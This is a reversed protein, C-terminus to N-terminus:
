PCLAPREHLRDAGARARRAHAHPGGGGRQRSMSHTIAKLERGDAVVRAKGPLSIYAPHHLIRTAYGYSAIQREVYRLSEAEEATGSLKTWRALEALHRMMAEADVQPAADLFGADAHRDSTQAM